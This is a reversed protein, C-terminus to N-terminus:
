IFCGNATPRGQIMLRHTKGGSGQTSSHSLALLWARFEALWDVVQVVLLGLGDGLEAGSEGSPSRFAPVFPM